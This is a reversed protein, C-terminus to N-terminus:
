GPVDIIIMIFNVCRVNLCVHVSCLCVYVCWIKCTRWLKSLVSNLRLLANYNILYAGLDRFDLLLNFQGYIIYMSYYRM